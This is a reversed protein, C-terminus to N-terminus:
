KKYLKVKLKATDDYEGAFSVEVVCYKYGLQMRVKDLRITDVSADGIDDALFTLLGLNPNSMFTNAKPFYEKVIEEEEM